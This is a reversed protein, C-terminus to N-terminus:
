GAPPSHKSLLAQILDPAARFNTESILQNLATLLDIQKLTAAEDLVGLLGTVRLGLNRAVRRAPKDDVLLLDANNQQALQIAAREGPDLQILDSNTSLEVRRIELWDPPNNAWQQLAVPAGTALMEDRAAEPIFIKQYLLPLLDLQDILLLYLIPSTDSVVIM